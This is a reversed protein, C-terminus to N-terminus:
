ATITYTIRYDKSTGLDISLSTEITGDSFPDADVNRDNEGAILLNTASLFIAGGVKHTVVYDIKVCNVKFL